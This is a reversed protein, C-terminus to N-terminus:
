PRRRAILEPCSRRTYGRARLPGPTPVPAATKVNRPYRVAPPSSTRARAATEPIAMVVPTGMVELIARTVPTAAERAALAETAAPTEMAVAAQTARRITQAAPVPTVVVKNRAEEARDKAAGQANNVTDALRQDRRDQVEQRKQELRAAREADREAIQAQIEALRDDIVSPDEDNTVETKGNGRSQAVLVVDSGEDASVDGDLEQETGDENLVTVKGNAKGTVVARVHQRTAKSPIITVRLATVTRFSPAPTPTPTATETAEGEPTGTPTESAEPTGTPTESAEPTGTPTESAEPTGTPTQSAEPTATETPEPTPTATETPTPEPTPTDTPEPTPTETPEPTGTPTESAEPTGTPTESAEPTGTPTESAEPTATETGTPTESPEPTDTAGPEETPAVPARDLLVGVRDGVSLADFGVTGEGPMKFITGGNVNITVNGFQTELQFSSDGKSVVDGALGRRTLQGAPIGDAGAFGSPIASAVLASVTLIAAIKGIWSRM